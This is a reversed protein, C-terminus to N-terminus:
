PYADVHRYLSHKGQENECDHQKSYNYDRSLKAPTARGKATPTNHM